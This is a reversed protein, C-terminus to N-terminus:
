NQHNNENEQCDTFHDPIFFAVPCQNRGIQLKQPLEEWQSTVTLPSALQFIKNQTGNSDKGGILLVRNNINDGVMRPNEILIPL